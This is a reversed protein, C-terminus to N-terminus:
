ACCVHSSCVCLYTRKERLIDFLTSLPSVSHRLIRTYCTAKTCCVACHTSGLSRAFTAHAILVGSCLHRKVEYVIRLAVALSVLRNFNEGDVLPAVSSVHVRADAVEM